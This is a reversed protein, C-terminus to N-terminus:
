RRGEDSKPRSRRALGGARVRELYRMALSVRALLSEGCGMHLTRPATERKVSM